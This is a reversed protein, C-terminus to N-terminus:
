RAPLSTRPRHVGRGPSGQGRSYARGDVPGAPGSLRWHALKRKNLYCYGCITEGETGFNSRPHQFSGTAGPPACAAIVRQGVWPSTSAMPRESMIICWSWQRHLMKNVIYRSLRIRGLAAHLSKSWCFEPTIRRHAGHHALAARFGARRHSAAAEKGQLLVSLTLAGTGSAPAPACGAM